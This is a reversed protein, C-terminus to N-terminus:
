PTGGDVITPFPTPTQWSAASAGTATLLNGPAPVGSIAVGNVKAVTPNPLTGSLDGGAAAGSQIAGTIRGDDGAAVTGTTTGVPLNAASVKGGTLTPVSGDTRIKLSGDTNHEVGLYANLIDGWNGTDGGPTPLRAM